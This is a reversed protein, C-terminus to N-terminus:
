SAIRNVFGSVNVVNATAAFARVLAGNQLVLGPVVLLLGDKPEVTVAIQEAATTGGFEVTLLAAASGVNVAYLWVEDFDATGTVATHILTGPTATAAVAIPAGDTSGSLARKEFSAM